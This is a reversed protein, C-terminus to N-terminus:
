GVQSREYPHPPAEALDARGNDVPVSRLSAQQRHDGGGQRAHPHPDVADMAQGQLGGATPFAAEQPPRLAHAAEQRVPDQGDARREGSFDALLPQAGRAFDADKALPCDVADVGRM